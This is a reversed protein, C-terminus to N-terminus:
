RAAARAPDDARPISALADLAPLAIALAARHEPALQAIIAAM